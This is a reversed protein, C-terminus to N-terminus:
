HTFRLANLDAMAAVCYSINGVVLRPAGPDCLHFRSRSIDAADEAREMKDRWEAYGLCSLFLAFLMLFALRDV